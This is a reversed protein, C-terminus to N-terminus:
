QPPRGAPPAVADGGRGATGAEGPLSGATWSLLLALPLITIAYVLYSLVSFSFAAEAPVGAAALFYVLTAERVGHGSISIPLLVVFLVIPIVVLMFGFDVDIGLAWALVTMLLVRAVQYGVALASAWLLLGPRARYEDIAIFCKHLGPLVVPRLRTPICLELLRRAAPNVTALGAAASAVLCLWVIPALNPSLEVPSLALGVLVLIVLSLVGLIRDVTISALSRVLDSTSRTLGVIKVAETGIVGPVVLGAVLSLSTLRLVTWYSVVSPGILVIYWRYAAYCTVVIVLGVGALLLGIDAQLILAMAQTLDVQAAIFAFLAVSVVVRLWVPVHWRRQETSQATM